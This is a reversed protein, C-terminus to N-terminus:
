AVSVKAVSGNLDKLLEETVGDHLRVDQFFTQLDEDLGELQDVLWVGITVALLVGLFEQFEEM